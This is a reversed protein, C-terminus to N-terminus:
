QELDDRPVFLDLVRELDSVDGKHVVRFHRVLDFLESKRTVGYREFHLKSPM